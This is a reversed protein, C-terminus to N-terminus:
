SSPDGDGEQRRSHSQNELISIEIARRVQEEEDQRMQLAYRDQSLADVPPVYNGALISQILLSYHPPSFQISSSSSATTQAVSPPDMTHAADNISNTPGTHQSEYDRKQARPMQRAAPDDGQSRQKLPSGRDNDQTSTDPSARPRKKPNTPTLSVRSETRLYLTNLSTQHGNGQSLLIQQHVEEYPKGEILIGKYLTLLARKRAFDDWERIAAMNRGERYETLCNRIEDTEWPFNHRYPIPLNWVVYPWQGRDFYVFCGQKPSRISHYMQDAAIMNQLTGDMLSMAGPHLPTQLFFLCFNQEKSNERNTDPAFVLVMGNMSQVQGNNWPQHYVGFNRSHSQCCRPCETAIHEKGDHIPDTREGTRCFGFDGPLLNQRQEETWTRHERSLNRVRQYDMKARQIAKVHKEVVSGQGWSYDIDFDLLGIPNTWEPHELTMANMARPRCCITLSKAHIAALLGQGPSAFSLCYICDQLAKDGVNREWSGLFAPLTPALRRYRAYQGVMDLAPKTIALYTIQKVIEWSSTLYCEFSVFCFFCENPPIAPFDDAQQTEGMWSEELVQLESGTLCLTREKLNRKHIEDHKAGHKRNPTQRQELSFTNIIDRATTQGKNTEKLGGNVVHFFHPVNAEWLCLGAIKKTVLNSQRVLGRHSTLSPASLPNLSTPPSVFRMEREISQMERGFISPASPLADSMPRFLSQVDSDSVLSVEDYARGSAISKLLRLISPRYIDRAWDVIYDLILILQLADDELLLSGNWLFVIEQGLTLM